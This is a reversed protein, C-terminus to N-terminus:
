ARTKVMQALKDWHSQMQYLEVPSLLNTLSRQWEWYVTRGRVAEEFLAASEFDPQTEESLLHVIEAFARGYFQILEVQAMVARPTGRSDHLENGFFRHAQEAQAVFDRLRAQFPERTMM